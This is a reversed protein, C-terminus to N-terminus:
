ILKRLLARVEDFENIPLTRQKRILRRSSITRIQSFVVKTQKKGVENSTPYYYQSNKESTTMPLIWLLESNLRKIILAPRDFSENKGNQESGLNEGLHVWWIEREKFYLKRKEALHLRCKLRTWAIIREVAARLQDM